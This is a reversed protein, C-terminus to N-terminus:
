EYLNNWRELSMEEAICHVERTIVNLTRKVRDHKDKMLSVLRKWHLSFLFSLPLCKGLKRISQLLVLYEKISIFMEAALSLNSIAFLKFVLHKNPENLGWNRVVERNWLLDNRWLIYDLFLIQLCIKNRWEFSYAKKNM